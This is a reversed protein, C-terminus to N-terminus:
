GNGYPSLPALADETGPDTPSRGHARQWLTWGIWVALMLAVKKVMTREGPTRSRREGRDDAM